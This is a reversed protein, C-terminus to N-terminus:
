ARGGRRANGVLDITCPLGRLSDPLPDRRAPWGAGGNPVHTPTRDIILHPSYSETLEPQVRVNEYWASSKLERAAAEWQETHLAHLFLQMRSLDSTPSFSIDVLVNRVACCLEVDLDGGVTLFGQRARAQAENDACLSCMALPLHTRQM